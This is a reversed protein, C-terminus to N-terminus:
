DLHEKEIKIKEGPRHSASQLRPIVSCTSLPQGSKCLKSNSTTHLHQM